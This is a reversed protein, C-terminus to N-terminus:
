WCKSSDYFNAITKIIINGNKYFHFKEFDPTINYNETPDSKKRKKKEPSNTSAIARCIQMFYPVFTDEQTPNLIWM